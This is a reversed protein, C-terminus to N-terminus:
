GNCGCRGPKRPSFAPRQNLMRATIKKAVRLKKSRLIVGSLRSASAHEGVASALKTGDSM